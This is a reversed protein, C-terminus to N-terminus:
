DIGWAAACALTEATLLGQPSVFHSMRGDCVGLSQGNAYLVIDGRAAFALPKRPLTRDAIDELGSYGRNKLARISGRETNYRGRFPAAHDIGTAILLWGCAFLACDHSGWAFPTSRAEDIYAALLGTWDERRM